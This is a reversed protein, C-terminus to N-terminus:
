VQGTGRGSPKKPSLREAGVAKAFDAPSFTEGSLAVTIKVGREGRERLDLAAELAAMGDAHRTLEPPLETEASILFAIAAEPSLGEAVSQSIFREFRELNPCFVPRDRSQAAELWRSCDITNECELCANRADTYIRGLKEYAFELVDVELRQIMERMKLAPGGVKGTEEASM